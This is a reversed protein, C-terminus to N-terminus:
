ARKKGLDVNIPMSDRDEVPESIMEKYQNHAYICVVMFQLMKMKGMSTKLDWQDYIHTLLNLEAKM